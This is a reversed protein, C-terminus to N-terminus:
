LLKILTRVIIVFDIWINNRNIYQLQLKIKQPRIKEFYLRDPDSSGELLLAENSNWISAYDTIGPKVNLIRKEDDNYLDTFKKVEPRPGVISMQGLFVNILQPIEDLKYKRIIRGIPTIRPDSLTTSSAGIKDANLVMSRFKFMYFPRNYRGTRPALYFISGGDFLKICIACILIVPSCMILGIISIILDFARKMVM